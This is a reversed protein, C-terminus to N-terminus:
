STRFVSTTRGLWRRATAYAYAVLPKPSVVVGKHLDDFDSSLHGFLELMEQNVLDGVRHLRGSAPTPPYPSLPNRKVLM